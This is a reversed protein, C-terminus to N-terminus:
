VCLTTIVHLESPWAKQMCAHMRGRLPPRLPAGGREKRYVCGCVCMHMGAQAQTVEPSKEKAMIDQLPGLVHTFTARDLTLVTLESVAKITAKSCAM